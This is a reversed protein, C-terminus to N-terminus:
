SRSYSSQIIEFHNSLCPVHRTYVCFLRGLCPCLFRSLQRQGVLLTFLVITHLSLVQTILRPRRDVSRHLLGMMKWFIPTNHQHLPRPTRLEGPLLLICTPITLCVLEPSIIHHHDHHSWPNPSARVCDNDMTADDCPTAYKECPGRKHGSASCPIGPVLASVSHMM